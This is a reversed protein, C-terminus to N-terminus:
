ALLDKIEKNIKMRKTYEPLFFGSTILNTEQPYFAPSDEVRNGAFSDEINDELFQAKYGNDIVELIEYVLDYKEPHANDYLQNFGCIDGVQFKM